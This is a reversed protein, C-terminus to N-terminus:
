VYNIDKASYLGNAVFWAVLLLGISEIGGAKLQHVLLLLLISGYSFALNSKEVDEYYLKFMRISLKFMQFVMGLVIVGGLIGTEFFAELILNHPYSWQPNNIVFSGLGQGLPNAIFGDWAAQYIPLRTNLIRGEFVHSWYKSVKSDSFQTLDIMYISAILLFLIIISIQVFLKREWNKVVFPITAFAIVLIHARQRLIFILFLVLLIYPLKFLFFFKRTTRLSLISFYALSFVLSLGITSIKNLKRLQRSVKNTAMYIYDWYGFVVFAAVVSLFVFGILFWKYFQLENNKFLMVRILIAPLIAAYFLISLKRIFYDGSLSPFFLEQLQINTAFLSCSVFFILVLSIDLKNERNWPKDNKIVLLFVAVLLAIFGWVRAHLGFDVTRGLYPWLIGIGAILGSLAVSSNCYKKYEIGFILM